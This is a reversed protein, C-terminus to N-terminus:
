IIEKLLSLVNIFKQKYENRQTIKITIGTVITHLLKHNDDFDLDEKHCLILNKKFQDYTDYNFNITRYVTAGDVIKKLLEKTEINYQNITPSISKGTAVHVMGDDFNSTKEICHLVALSPIGILVTTDMEEIDDMTLTGNQLLWEGINFSINVFSTVIDEM